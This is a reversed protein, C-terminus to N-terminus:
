RALRLEGIGPSPQGTSAATVAPARGAAEYCVVDEIADDIDRLPRWGTVRQIAATDPRRSGLEEFGEPYADGYPVHRITSNSGTRSIVKRALSNISVEQSNGVNFARGLAEDCGSLGVMAEVADYVHTFCRTQAGDGYVTVDEGRLAQRVFTPLVMGHSGTQRPGVTNFLRVVTTPTGHERFYEYALMEGVAKAASYGWRSKSLSGLIRDCDEDLAGQCQKGYIESTSTFLLRTGRRATAEMVVDAGRVNSLLSELPRNVVLKVGVAAALHFCTDAPRMLDDVLAEDLVSGEVLEARGEDLLHRVNERSGTSLDDVLVM